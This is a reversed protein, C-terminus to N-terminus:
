YKEFAFVVTVMLGKSSGQQMWVDKFKSNCGFFNWTNFQWCCLRTSPHVCLCMYVSIISLEHYDFQKM